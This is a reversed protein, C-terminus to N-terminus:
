QNLALFPTRKKFEMLYYKGPPGRVRFFSDTMGESKEKAEQIKSNLEQRQTYNLDQRISLNRLRAPANKLKSLSSLVEDRAQPTNFRVKIPRFKGEAIREASFKGLRNVSQLKEADCQLFQLLDTILQQDEQKHNQEEDDDEEDRDISEPARYVVIGRARMEKDKDVENMEVIAKKLNEITINNAAPTPATSPTDDKLVDAWTRGQSPPLHSDIDTLKKTLNDEVSDMKEDMQEKLDAPLQELVDNQISDMTDKMTLQTNTLVDLKRQISVLEQMLEDRNPTNLNPQQPNANQKQYLNSILGRKPCMIVVCRDCLWLINEKFKELVGFEVPSLKQCKTEYKDECGACVLWRIRVKTNESSLECGKCTWIEEVKDDTVPVGNQNTGAM